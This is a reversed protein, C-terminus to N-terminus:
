PQNCEKSLQDIHETYHSAANLCAVLQARCKVSAEDDVRKFTFVVMCLLALPMLFITLAWFTAPLPRIM